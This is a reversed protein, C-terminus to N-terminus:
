PEKVLMWIDSSLLSGWLTNRFSFRFWREPRRDQGVRGGGWAGLQGPDGTIAWMRQSSGLKQAWQGLNDRQGFVLWAGRLGKKVLGSGQSHFSPYFVLMTGLLELACERLYGQGWNFRSDWFGLAQGFFTSKTGALVQLYPWMEWGKHFPLVGVEMLVVYCVWVTERPGVVREQKQYSKMEKVRSLRQEGGMSDRITEKFYRTM